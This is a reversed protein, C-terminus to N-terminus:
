GLAPGPSGRCGVCCTENTGHLELSSRSRGVRRPDYRQLDAQPGKIGDDLHQNVYAFGDPPMTSSTSVAVTTSTGEQGGQDGVGTTGSGDDSPTCAAIVIGIAVILPLTRRM